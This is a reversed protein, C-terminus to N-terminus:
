RVWTECRIGDGKKRGHDREPPPRELRSVAPGFQVLPEHIKEHAAQAEVLAVKQSWRIGGVRTIRGRHRRVAAFLDPQTRRMASQTARKSGISSRCVSGALPFVPDTHGVRKRPLGNEAGRRWLHHEQALHGVAEALTGASEKSYVVFYNVRPLPPSSKTSPSAREVARVVERDVVQEGAADVRFSDSPDEISARVRRVSETTWFLEAGSRMGATADGSLVQSPRHPRGRCAITTASYVAAPGTEPRAMLACHRWKPAM